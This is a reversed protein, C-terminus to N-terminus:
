PASFSIVICQKTNNPLLFVLFGRLDGPPLTNRPQPSHLLLFVPTPRVGTKKHLQPSFFHFILSFHSTLSNNRKGDQKNLHTSPSFTGSFHEPCLFVPTPFAGTKKYFILLFFHLFSYFIDALFNTM